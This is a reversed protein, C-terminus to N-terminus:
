TGNGGISRRIANSEVINQSNEKKPGNNYSYMNETNEQNSGKESPNESM